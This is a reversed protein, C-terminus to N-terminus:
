PRDHINLGNGTYVLQGRKGQSDLRYVLMKDLRPPDAVVLYLKPLREVVRFTGQPNAFLVSSVQDFQQLRNFLVAELAPSNQPDIQGQNVADVNLRNILLPTQLYTKLEQTVRENTEIVLRQGLDAVSEQGSQYCLYGVLAVAAVTQLVFPVVLVEHLPVNALLRRLTQPLAIPM